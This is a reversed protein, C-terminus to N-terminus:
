IYSQYELLFEIPHIYLWVWEFHVIIQHNAKKIFNIWLSIQNDIIYITGSLLVYPLIHDLLFAPLDCVWNSIQNLYLNTQFQYLDFHSFRTGHKFNNIHFTRKAALGIPPYSLYILYPDKVVLGDRIKTVHIKLRFFLNAVNIM